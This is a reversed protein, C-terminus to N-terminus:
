AADDARGTWRLDVIVRLNDFRHNEDGEHRRRLIVNIEFVLPEDSRKQGTVTSIYNLM